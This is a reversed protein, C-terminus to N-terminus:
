RIVKIVQDFYCWHHDSLSIVGNEHLDLNCSDVSQGSKEGIKCIEIEEVIAKRCPGTWPTYLVTDGIKVRKM